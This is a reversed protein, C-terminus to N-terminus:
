DSRGFSIEVPGLMADDPIEALSLVRGGHRAAFASAGEVTAFPVLEPAGMGGTVGAGVVFHAEEAAVWATGPDEWSPAKGMDSVYAALIPAAREPGRLYALGDRVQAFFIPEPYGELHIQAKPGGHGDLEMLCFHSVSDRTIQVPDPRIAAEERCAALLMLALITHKM